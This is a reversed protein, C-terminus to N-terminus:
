LQASWTPFSGPPRSRPRLAPHRRAPRIAPHPRGTRDPHRGRGVSQALRVGNRGPRFGHAVVDQPHAYMEVCFWVPPLCAVLVLATPEWGSRGRGAARLLMILGVLLFLWVVYGTRLTPWVAGGRQSWRVMAVVANSCSHGPGDGFPLNVSSGISTVFGVAGAILPYVPRCLDFHEVPSAPVHVRAARPLLGLHPLHDGMRRWRRAWGAHRRVRRLGWHGRVMWPCLGMRGTTTHVM